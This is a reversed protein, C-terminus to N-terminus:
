VSIHDSSGLVIIPHIELQPNESDGFKPAREDLSIPVAECGVLDWIFRAIEPAGVSQRGAFTALSKSGQLFEPAHWEGRTVTKTEDREVRQTYTTDLYFWYAADLHYLLRNM